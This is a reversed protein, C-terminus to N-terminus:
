SVPLQWAAKWLVHDVTGPTTTLKKEAAFRAAVHASQQGFRGDVAIDWGRAKMRAQWARVTPRVQNVDKTTLRHGDFTPVQGPRVAPREKAIVVFRSRSARVVEGRGLGLARACGPWPQWGRQAQLRHAAADQTAASADSPLGSYGLGHWTRPEFQYAGYYGNGTNSAYNGNSECQRLRAFDDETAAGAPTAFAAGFTATIGGAALVPAAKSPKAHKPKRARSLAM